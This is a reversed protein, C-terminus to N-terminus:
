GADPYPVNARTPPSHSRFVRRGDPSTATTSGDPHLTLAWGWRHIVILHHFSCLTILNHLATTGGASRPVLHHIHCVSAPQECGPFACHPHRTTVARRLHAPVAPEAAAADLPLPVDPPLGVAAAGDGTLQTQRLWAALGGPGSLADAAMALLSGRLRALTEAPLPTRAPCTCGGCHCGCPQTGPGAVGHGTLFVQVMRDLAAQDVHGTVVPALSADCAAADAETDRLWGHGGAAAARWATEADSAGPLGRLQSLTIHVQAQTPQGARGPLMGSAILRRCAEELGDHRRQAATRTDEPGVRRGLAELVAALAAACGPTLDGNLRGAGGFTIDLWAGRDGFDGDDNDAQGMHARQYMEEALGALGALDAGGTAAWALIRDADQRMREPLRDSWGCIQRAWSASIEGAALVDALVPHAALRRAWGVADAAAGMTVRTQWKLWVRACGQGDAEYGGQAAFAALVRSRAATHRAEARELVRLVQAQVDAPLLAPDAANLAELARDLMVLAGPVGAPAQGDCM